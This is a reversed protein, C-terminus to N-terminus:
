KHFIAKLINKLGIDADLFYRITNIKKRKSIVQILSNLIFRRNLKNFAVKQKDPTLPCNYSLINQKDLHYRMLQPEFTSREKNIEQDLHTRWWILSPQFKVVFYKAALKLWLETDGIYRKGTFGGELDFIERNIIVGTPGALFLGGEFYHELYSNSPEILIPYPKKDERKNSQTGFAAMPFKEMSQIMVELGHPYILDDADLYKIYKGIAYQAAKNRNLYDGLNEDNLYVKIRQDLAEYKRAIEITKDTSCDDVIILEFNNYSSNIVSEIADAIFMERNYATMLVSVLPRNM